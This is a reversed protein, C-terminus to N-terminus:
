VGSGAITQDAVKEPVIPAPEPADAVLRFNCAFHSLSCSHLNGRDWGDLGLHIVKEQKAPWDTCIGVVEYSLGTFHTQYTQGARIRGVEIMQQTM